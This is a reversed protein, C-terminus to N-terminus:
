PKPITRIALGAEGDGGSVGNGTGGAGGSGPVGIRVSSGSSVTAKSTANGFIGISPGGSGGGGPGGTGGAGGPGGNGGEGIESRCYASGLGATGGSGGPGGRGGAGGEGGNGATIVSAESITISSNWLYVGFSGGGAAGATGAGGGAGGGGGGGGGNGAGNNCFTCVQGGGGGGGGGGRGASGGTGDGGGQGVWLVASLASTNTAGAGVIGLKGGLGPSGAAGDRGPDGAAAGAGGPTDSWGRRGAAGTGTSGGTDRGGKGGAGGPFRAASAGGAGGAGPTPGGCQGDGGPAGAEGATGQTGTRGDAGAIGRAASITVRRLTLKAGAYARIGYYTTGAPVNPKNTSGRLTLLELVVDTAGVAVVAEPAGVVLTTLGAKRSWNVPDYGGYIATGTVVKVHGYAGAAALVVKRKGVAAEVAASIERLPAVRTGPNSDSGGPAVFVADSITGDIGDCNSDVFALDPRDPAGPKIAPDSPGCDQADLAGDGDRDAPASPTGTPRNGHARVSVFVQVRAANGARDRVVGLRRGRYRIAPRADDDAVTKERVTLVLSRGVAAGVSVIRYDALRFPYSGDRDARHRIPESYTLRVADARTDRDRDLMAASVVRPPKSDSAASLSTVITATALIAVAVVFSKPFRM